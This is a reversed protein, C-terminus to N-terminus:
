DSSPAHAVPGTANRSTRVLHFCRHGRNIPVLAKPKVKKAALTALGRVDMDPSSFVVALEPQLGNIEGIIISHFGMLQGLKPVDDILMPFLKQPFPM